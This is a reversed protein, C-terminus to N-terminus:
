FGTATLRKVAVKRQAFRVSVPLQRQYRNFFIRAADSSARPYTARQRRSDNSYDILLKIRGRPKGRKTLGGKGFRQYLGYPLDERGKPVGKFYKKKMSKHIKFNRRAINGFKNLRINRSPHALPLGDKEVKNGGHMVEHMYYRNDQFYLLSSLANKTSYVINMGERTFRTAGGEINRDFATKMEHRTYNMAKNQAHSLMFPLDRKFPEIIYRELDQVNSLIVTEM